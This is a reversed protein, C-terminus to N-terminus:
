LRCKQCRALLFRATTFSCRRTEALSLARSARGSWISSHQAPFGICTAALRDSFFEGWRWDRSLEIQHLRTRIWRESLRGEHRKLLAPAFQNRSAASLAFLQCLPNTPDVSPRARFYNLNGTRSSHWCAVSQAFHGVTLINLSLVRLFHTHGVRLSRCTSVVVPPKGALKSM